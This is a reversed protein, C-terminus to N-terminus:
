VKVRAWRGRSFYVIAVIARLTVDVCMGSWAGILGLNWVVGLLWAIPLRVLFIGTVNLALVARTDGAGRIGHIYVLMVALPIQYWSLFRLAPVGIARVAPEPTMVGYIVEAGLLYVMAGVIAILIVHRAAENGVRKAAAPKGAGLSRGILSAAAYGWATAPLYTLAEAEMGIMHAALYAKGASENGLRAIISLFLSQGAWMLVGDLAAPAGIRLIRRVDEGHPLMFERRLRLGSVGRALVALMLVGGCVRATVTGAVIGDIGRPEFPGLGFVFSSALLINLANVSGLVLMPTRMDGMGRLAASGILCFGFALQGWADTRLFGVAVRHSEGALKQAEAYLPAFAQLLGFIMIALLGTLTVSRGAYRNAQELDGAGHARAVLATTGTGVLSFILTALWSAYAAIGVTTTYIGTEHGATSVQGALWTDFLSVCINLLQEALAPLALTLVHGRLEDFGQRNAAEEIIPPEGEPM